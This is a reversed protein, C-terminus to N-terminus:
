VSPECVTNGPICECRNNMSSWKIIWKGCDVPNRTVTHWNSLTKECITSISQISNKSPPLLNENLHLFYFIRKQKRNVFINICPSFVQGFTLYAKTCKALSQFVHSLVPASQYSSACKALHALALQFLGQFILTMVILPPQSPSPPLQIITTTTDLLIELVLIRNASCKSRAPM